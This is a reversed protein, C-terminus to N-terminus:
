SVTGFITSYSYEHLTILFLESFQFACPFQNTIQWVCDLFFVFFPARSGGADSGGFLGARTSFPYGFLLWEKEILM